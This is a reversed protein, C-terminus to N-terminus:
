FACQEDTHGHFGHGEAPQLGGAFHAGVHGAALGHTKAIGSIKTSGEQTEQRHLIGVLTLDGAAHHALGLIEVAERAVHEGEGCPFLVDAAVLGGAVDARVLTEDGQTGVDEQLQRAGFAQLAQRFLVDGLGLVQPLAQQFERIPFGNELGGEEIFEGQAM